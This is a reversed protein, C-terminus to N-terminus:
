NLRQINSVCVQTYMNINDFIDKIFVEEMNNEMKGIDKIFEEMLGIFNVMDMNEIQITYVKAVNHGELPDM